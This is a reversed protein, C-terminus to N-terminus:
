VSSGLVKYYTLVTGITACGERVTIAAAASVTPPATDLEEGNLMRNIQACAAPTVSPVVASIAIADSGSNLGTIKVNTSDLAFSTPTGTSFGKAPMAVDTTLEFSPDYLGWNTGVTSTPSLVM